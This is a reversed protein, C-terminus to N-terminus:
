STGAAIAATQRARYCSADDRGQEAATSATILAGSREPAEIVVVAISLGSIIRNRLPFHHRLPAVGPPYESLVAGAAEVNKALTAHERPLDSRHWVRARRHDARGCGARRRARSDIGRALGSVVAVGAATLDVALRRTM